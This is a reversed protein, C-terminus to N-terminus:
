ECLVEYRTKQNKIELQFEDGRYIEWETQNELVNLLEKLGDMWIESSLKRSNVIDGTLIGIM